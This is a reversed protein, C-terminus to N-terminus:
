SYLCYGTKCSLTTAEQNPTKQRTIEEAVRQKIQEFLLKNVDDLQSKIQDNFQHNSNLAEQSVVPRPKIAQTELDHSNVYAGTEASPKTLAEFASSAKAKIESHLKPTLGVQPEGKISISGSTGLISPSVARTHTNKVARVYVDRDPLQIKTVPKFGVEGAIKARLEQHTEVVQRPKQGPLNGQSFALGPHTLLDFSPLSEKEPIM